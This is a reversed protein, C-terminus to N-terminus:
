GRARPVGSPLGQAIPRLPKSSPRHVRRWLGGPRQRAAPQRGPSWRRRWITAASICGGEARQRVIWSAASRPRAAPISSPCCAPSGRLDKAVIEHIRDTMGEDRARRNAKPILQAYLQPHSGQAENGPIKQYTAIAGGARDTFFDMRAAVQRNLRVHVMGPLNDRVRAMFDRDEPALGSVPANVHGDEVACVVRDAELTEGQGDREVEVRCPGSAPAEIRLARTNLMLVLDRSLAAALSNMGGKLVHVTSRGIMHPKTTAFFAASTAGADWSRTGRFVPNVMRELVGRSLHRTVHAALTEGDAAPASTADDM